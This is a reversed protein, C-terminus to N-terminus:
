RKSHRNRRRVVVAAVMQGAATGFLVIREFTHFLSVIVTAAIRRLCLLDCQTYQILENADVGGLIKHTRTSVGM